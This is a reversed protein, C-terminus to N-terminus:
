LKWLNSEVVKMSFSCGWSEYFSKMQCVEIRWRGNFASPELSENLKSSPYSEEIIILIRSPNLLNRSKLREMEILFHCLERFSNGKWIIILNNLHTEESCMNRKRDFIAHWKRFNNKKQKIKNLYSEGPRLNRKGRNAM